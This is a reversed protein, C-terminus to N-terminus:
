RAFTPLSSEIQARARQRLRVMESRDTGAPEIPEHITVDIAGRRLVRRESAVIVDTGSLTIPVVPRGAAVAARFAGLRFPLLGERRSRRGEPYVLLSNGDRLTEVMADACALRAARSGRDVTLHAAKRVATGIMPWTLVGHEAVFRYDAPVAAMLVVSDVYSVHNSVLTVAGAGRLHEVGRVRMRCGSARVIFRSWQRVLRDSMRGRPLLLLVLWAPPMTLALLAAIYATFLADGVDFLPRPM